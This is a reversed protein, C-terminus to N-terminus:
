PTVTGAPTAAPKPDAEIAQELKEIRERLVKGDDATFRNGRNMFAHVASEFESQAAKGELERYLWMAWFLSLVLLLHWAKVAEHGLM